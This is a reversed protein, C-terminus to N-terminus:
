SATSSPTVEDRLRNIAARWRHAGKSSSLGQERYTIGTARALLVARHSDTLRSLVARVDLIDAQRDSGADLRGRGCDVMELRVESRTKVRHWDILARQTVTYLWHQLGDPTGLDRYKTLAKEIVSGVIDEATARDPNPLRRRVYGVLPTWYAMLEDGDTM